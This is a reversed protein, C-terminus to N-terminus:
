RIGERPVKLKAGCAQDVSPEHGKLTGVAFALKWGGKLTRHCDKYYLQASEQRALNVINLLTWPGANKEIWLRIADLPKVKLRAWFEFTVSDGHGRVRMVPACKMVHLLFKDRDTTPKFDRFCAIVRSPVGLRQANGEARIWQEHEHIEFTRGTRYNIWYGEKM